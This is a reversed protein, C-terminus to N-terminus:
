AYRVLKNRIDERGYKKTPLLPNQQCTDDEIEIPVFSIRFFGRNVGVPINPPRRHVIYPDICHVHDVSLTRINEEKARDEFFLHINHKLPDFSDPFDFQQELVETPYSDSWIYNQEPVHAFRMSFGDVHWQADTVSKVEGCRVTIYCFDHDKYKTVQNQHCALITERLWNLEPPIRWGDSWPSKVLMRLIYQDNPREVTVPFSEIKQNACSFTKLSLNTKARQHM